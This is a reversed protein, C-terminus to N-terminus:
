GFYNECYLYKGTNMEIAVISNPGVKKSDNYKISTFQIPNIYM